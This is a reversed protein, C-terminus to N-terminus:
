FFNKRLTVRMMSNLQNQKSYSLTFLFFNWFTRKPHIISLPDDCSIALNLKEERRMNFKSFYYKLCNNLFVLSCVGAQKFTELM